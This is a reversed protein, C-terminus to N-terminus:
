YWVVPQVKTNLWKELLWLDIKFKFISLYLLIKRHNLIVSMEFMCKTYQLVGINWTYLLALLYTSNAWDHRSKAAGQVAAWWAGRDMLNELCHYQLPNGNGEGPSRGLGPISGLDGASCAFEKSVSSCPFDM